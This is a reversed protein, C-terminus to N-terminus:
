QDKHLHLNTNTATQKIEELTKKISNLSQDKKNQTNEQYKDIM